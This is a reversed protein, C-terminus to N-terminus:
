IIQLLLLYRTVTEFFISRLLDFGFRSSLSIISIQFYSWPFSFLRYIQRIVGCRIDRHRRTRAPLLQRNGNAFHGDLLLGAGVPVLEEPLWRRGDGLWQANDHYSIRVIWKTEKPKGSKREPYSEGIVKVPKNWYWLALQNSACRHLNNWKGSFLDATSWDRRFSTSGGESTWKREADM